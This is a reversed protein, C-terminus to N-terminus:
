DDDTEEYSLSFSDIVWEKIDSEDNSRPRAGKQSDELRRKDMEKSKNVTKILQGNEFTLEYVTRFTIPRQFGMHVYMEDIFDKGILISGTFDLELNIKPYCYSFFHKIYAYEEDEPSFSTEDKPEIGNIEKPEKCKIFLTDIILRDELVAYYAVFGRWCATSASQPSIDYDRPNFLTPGKIGAISYSEGKFIFEDPIQGTM